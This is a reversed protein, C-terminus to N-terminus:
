KFNIWLSVASSFAGICVIVIPCAMEEVIEWTIPLFGPGLVKRYTLVGPPGLNEAPIADELAVSQSDIFKPIPHGDYRSYEANAMDSKFQHEAERQCKARTSFLPYLTQTHM